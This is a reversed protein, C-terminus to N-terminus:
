YTERSNSNFLLLLLRAAGKYTYMTKKTEVRKVLNKHHETSSSFLGNLNSSM